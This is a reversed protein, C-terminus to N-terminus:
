SLRWTVNYQPVGQEDNGIPALTYGNVTLLRMQYQTLNQSVIYYKQGYTASQACRRSVMIVYALEPATSNSMIRYNDRCTQADLIKAEVAAHPARGPVLGHDKTYRGRDFASVVTLLLILLLM